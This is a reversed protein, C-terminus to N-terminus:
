HDKRIFVMELKSIDIAANITAKKTIDGKRSSVAAVKGVVIGSPLDGGLGSTVVVDGLNVTADILLESLTLGGIGGRLIGTARSSQIIVPVTSRPNTLLLITSQRDDVQSVIGILNGQAVVAQGTHVGDQRGRNVILDKLTGGSTQGILQAPLYTDKSEQTFNLEQRLIDNEHSVENLHALQAQLDNNKATLEANEKALDRITSIITFLNVTKRTSSVEAALVPQTMIDIRSLQSSVASIHSLGWLLLGCVAAVIFSQYNKM